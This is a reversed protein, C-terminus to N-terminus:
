YKTARYGEFSTLDQSSIGFEKSWNWLFQNNKKFTSTITIFLM